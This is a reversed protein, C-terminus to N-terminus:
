NLKSIAWEARQRVTPNLNPSQRLKELHSRAERDHWEVLQDILAVQVLPSQQEQLASVVSNRVQPQAAHRSLAGLAALRVDVSPDYRLTHLLASLVQPNPQQDQTSWSVAELRASASQQQLMSLVVLEKMSSLESRLSTLEESSSRSDAVHLGAFMGIALLAVSWAAAGLPSRLWHFVTWASARKRSESGHAPQGSRGAQFAQLMAEFRARSAPSPQDVPLLSLKKWVAVDESCDACQALHAEVNGRQNPDLSGQLYDPLLEAIQECNM